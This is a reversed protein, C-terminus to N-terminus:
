DIFILYLVLIFMTPLFFLHMDTEYKGITTVTQVIFDFAHIYTWKPKPMSLAEYAVSCFKNFEELSMNYKSEMSKYLSSLLQYKELNDDKETYEVQIFLLPSLFVLLSFGFTRLLVKKLLSNM